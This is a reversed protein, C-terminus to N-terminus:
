NAPKSTKRNGPKYCALRSVPWGASKKLLKDIHKKIMAFTREAPSVVKVIKIRGPERRALSLYGNRVKRHFSIREEEIRDRINKSKARLLGSKIDPGLDLCITLDPRIGATVSRNLVDILSASIGRGFGQYAVTADTFRDTVVARGKKNLAPIVVQRIHQARDAMYLFLETYADIEKNSPDLLIKRISRGIRTSGPEFTLLVSYGRAQLYDRILGTQTTKGTGEGGEISIFIGRKMFYDM